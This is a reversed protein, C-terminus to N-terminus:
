HNQLTMVEEARGESMLKGAFELPRLSRWLLWDSVQLDLAAEYAAKKEKEATVSAQAVQDMDAMGGAHLQETLQSAQIAYKSSADALRALQDAKRKANLATHLKTEVEIVSQQYAAEAKGYDARAALLGAREAVFPGFSQQLSVGVRYSNRSTSDFAGGFGANSQGLWDYRGTLSVVPYFAAQAQDLKRQAADVRDKAAKVKPDNQVFDNWNQNSVDVPKASPIQGTLRILNNGALRIGISQALAASKDELSQCAQALDRESQSLSVRAQSVAILSARGMQYRQEARQLIGRQLDVVRSQAEAGFQAKLLDGYSTVVSSLTENIQNNLDNETASVGLEAGRYGAIDKGGNFLNWNMGLSPYSLYRDGQGGVLSSGVSTAQGGPVLSVFHETQFSVTVTPLFPNTASLVSAKAKEIDQRAAIVLPQGAYASALVERPSLALYSSDSGCATFAESPLDVAQVGLSVLLLFEFPLKLLFARIKM